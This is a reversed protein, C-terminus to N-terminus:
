SCAGIAVTGSLSGSLVIKGTFTFITVQIRASAGQHQLRVQITLNGVFPPYPANIHAFGHLTVDAQCVAAHSNISVIQNPAEGCKIGAGPQNGSLMGNQVGLQATPGLTSCFSLRVGDGLGILGDGPQPGGPAFGNSLAFSVAGVGPEIETALMVVSYEQGTNLDVFTAPIFPGLQGVQATAGPTWGSVRAESGGANISMACMIVTLTVTGRVADHINMLISRRRRTTWKPSPCKSGASGMTVLTGVGSRNLYLWRISFVVAVKRESLAWQLGDRNALTYINTDRLRRLRLRIEAGPPRAVRGGFGSNFMVYVSASLLVREGKVTTGHKINVARSRCPTYNIPEHRGGFDGGPDHHRVLAARLSSLSRMYCLQLPRFVVPTAALEHAPREVNGLGTGQFFEHCGAEHSGCKAAHQAQGPVFGRWM